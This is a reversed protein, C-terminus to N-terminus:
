PGTPSAQERYVDFILMPMGADGGDPGEDENFSPPEGGCAISELQDRWRGDHLVGADILSAALPSPGLPLSRSLGNGATVIPFTLLPRYKWGSPVNWGDFRAIRMWAGRPLRSVAKKCTQAFLTRFLRTWEPNAGNVNMVEAGLPSSPLRTAAPTVIAAAQDIIAETFSALSPKRSPWAVTACRPPTPMAKHDDFLLFALRPFAPMFPPTTAPPPSLDAALNFLGLSVAHRKGSVPSRFLQFPPLREYLDRQKRSSPGSQWNSKDVKGQLICMSRRTGSGDHVRVVLALDGLECSRTVAGLNFRAIPVSDVWISSVAVYRGLRQGIEQCLSGLWQRDHIARLFDREVPSGSAVIKANNWLAADLPHM